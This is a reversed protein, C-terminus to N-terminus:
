NREVGTIPRIDSLNPRLGNSSIESAPVAMENKMIANAGDAIKRNKARASSPMVAPLIGTAEATIESVVAGWSRALPNPIIPAENPNPNIKPGAIEAKVSELETSIQNIEPQKKEQVAALKLDSDTKMKMKSFVHATDVYGTKEKTDSTQCAAILLIPTIKFLPHM